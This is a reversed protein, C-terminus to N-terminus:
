FINTVAKLNTTQQSDIEEAGVWEDRGVALGALPKQKRGCVAIIVASGRFAYDKSTRTSSIGTWFGPM